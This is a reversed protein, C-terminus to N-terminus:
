QPQQPSAEDTNEIQPSIKMNKMALSIRPNNVKHLNSNILYQTGM